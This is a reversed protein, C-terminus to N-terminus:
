RMFSECYMLVFNNVADIPPDFKNEVLGLLIYKMPDPCVREKCDQVHLTAESCTLIRLQRQQLLVM